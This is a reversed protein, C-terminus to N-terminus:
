KVKCESCTESSCLDNDHIFASCCSGTSGSSTMPNGNKDKSASVILDTVSEIHQIAELHARESKNM